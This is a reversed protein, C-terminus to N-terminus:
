LNFAALVASSPKIHPIPNLVVRPLIATIRSVAAIVVPIPFVFIILENIPNNTFLLDYRM